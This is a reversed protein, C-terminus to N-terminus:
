PTQAPMRKKVTLTFNGTSGAEFSTVLLRHTLPRLTRFTVRSNSGDGGDDNEAVFKGNAEEVRLFTDFDASQLDVTYLEGPVAPFDFVQHHKRESPVDWPDALNWRITESRLPPDQAIPGNKQSRITLRFQGFKAGVCTAVVNMRMDNKPTYIIKANLNGGSDDDFAAAAGAANELRLYSDFFTSTMEIEYKRNAELTLPITEFPTKRVRHIPSASTLTSDHQLLTEFAGGLQQRTARMPAVRAHGWLAFGSAILDAAWERDTAANPATLKFDIAGGLPNSSVLSLRFTGTRAPVFDFELSRGLTTKSVLPEGHEKQSAVVVKVGAMAGDFRFRYAVDAILDLEHVRTRTPSKAPLIADTELLRGEQHFVVIKPSALRVGSGSRLESITLRFSGVNKGATTGAVIRYTGSAACKWDIKSALNGGSDDDSALRKGQPSILTLIPDAGVSALFFRYSKGEECPMAFEHSEPSKGDPSRRPDFVGVKEDLSVARLGNDPELVPDSARLVIDCTAPATALLGLIPSAAVATAIIAENGVAAPIKKQRGLFLTRRDPELQDIDSSRKFEGCAEVFTGYTKASEAAHVYNTAILARPFKLPLPTKKRVSTDYDRLAGQYWEIAKLPQGRDAYMIGLQNKAEISEVLQQAKGDDALVKRLWAEADAFKRNVRLYVGYVRAVRRSLYHSEGKNRACAEYMEEFIRSGGAVDGKQALSDGLSEVVRLVMQHDLGMGKRCVDLCEKYREVADDKKGTEELLYAHIGISWAVFPHNQGLNERSLQVVLRMKEDATKRDGFIGAAIAQQSYGFAKASSSDGHLRRFTELAPTIYLLAEPAKSRTHLLATALGAQATATEFHEQGFRELRDKLVKRYMREAAEVDMRETLLWAINFECRSAVLFADPDKRAISLAEEYGRMATPDDGTMHALWALQYATEALDKAEVGPLQKRIALSEELLPRGEKYQGLSRFVSGITLLIAARTEPDGKLETRIKEVGRLLVDKATLTSSQKTDPGFAYGTLGIPDSADFLGSLFKAVRQAKENERRAREANQKAIEAQTKAAEENRQATEENAKAIKANIEATEANKNARVENTKALDENKKAITAQHDARIAFAVSIVTGLILSAAVAGVLMASLPNRQTWRGVREVASIPRAQIPEGTICRRLDESVARCDVYRRAPDKELMKLCITELDRSIAPNKKRPSQPETDQHHFMVLEPTGEFPTSGTIMEYLMIGLSYQDSAPDAATRDGRAQEPSMYLPTGLIQGQHTLQEADDQRSALGFDTLMPEGKEDTLVNAPKVDRHVIGQSHAYGLADALSRTTQMAWQLDPTQAQREAIEVQLTRGRIFASAIFFQSGEEGFEYLPVIAPHRLNAAAKAERLFRRVRLEADGRDLKAVKLAVARDLNPDYAEYVKGFAGEGLTRRM